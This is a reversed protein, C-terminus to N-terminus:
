CVSIYIVFNSNHYILVKIDKNEDLMTDHANGWKMLVIKLPPIINWLICLSVLKVKGNNKSM